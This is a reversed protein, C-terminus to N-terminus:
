PFLVSGKKLCVHVGKGVVPDGGLEICHQIFKVEVVYVIYFLGGVVLVLSLLGLLGLLFKM